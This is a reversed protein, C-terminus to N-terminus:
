PLCAKIENTVRYYVIIQKIHSDFDIQKVLEPLAIRCSRCFFEFLSREPSVISPRMNLHKDRFIVDAIRYARKLSCERGNHYIMFRFDNFTLTYM